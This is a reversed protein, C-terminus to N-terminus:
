FSGRFKEEPVDGSVGCQLANEIREVRIQDAKGLINLCAVAIKAAEPYYGAAVFDSTPVPYDPSAIRVPASSLYLFNQESVQAILESAIGNSTYGTDAVILKGTKKISEVVPGIDMPQVSRMDIVEVHIGEKELEEAAALAELVMYSFAAVTIHDGTKVVSAKDLPTCYYGDPVEGAVSHLRRHEIFIVPNKDEIASILMGKADGPTVPMVVKLGPIHAFLTQLSQSHQPGQGWGRGIILRVVMPVTNEGNFIANWNAANNILQDMALLAFEIRQHVLVPRFGGLAAGICVGTIGNESVPTDFVRDPGYKDALGLTTGFIGRPDPVGEGLLIVTNDEQMCLDLGDRIAQAQTISKDSM